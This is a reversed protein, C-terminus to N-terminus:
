EKAQLYSTRDLVQSHNRSSSKDLSFLVCARTRVYVCVCVRLGVAVGRIGAVECLQLSEPFLGAAM